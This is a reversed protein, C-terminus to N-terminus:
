GVQRVAGEVVKSSLWGARYGVQEIARGLSIARYSGTSMSPPALTLAHLAKAPSLVSDHPESAIAGSALDEFALITRRVLRPDAMADHHLVLTSHQSRGQVLDVTSWEERHQAEAPLEPLGSLVDEALVEHM